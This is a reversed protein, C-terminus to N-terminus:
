ANIAVISYSYTGAGRPTGAYFYNPARSFGTARNMPIIMFRLSVPMSVVAIAKQMVKDHESLDVVSGVPRASFSEVLSADRTTEAV